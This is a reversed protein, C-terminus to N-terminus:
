EVAVGCGKADEKFASGAGKKWIYIYEFREREGKKLDAGLVAEEAHRDMLPMKLKKTVPPLCKKVADYMEDPMNLALHGGKALGAWVNKLVPVFFVDM